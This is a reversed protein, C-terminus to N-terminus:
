ADLISDGEPLGNGAAVAKDTLEQRRRVLAASIEDMDSVGPGGQAQPHALLPTSGLPTLGATAETAALTVPTAASPLLCPQPLPGPTHGRQM